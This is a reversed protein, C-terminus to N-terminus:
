RAILLRGSADKRLTLGQMEAVVTLVKDPQDAEFRGSIRKRSLGPEAFGASFGPSQRELEVLLDALTMDEADIWGQTWDPADAATDLQTFAAQKLGGEDTLLRGGAGLIRRQDPQKLSVVEVRGELVSVEVAGGSREDVNFRTGLATVRHTATFVSFPRRADKAVAFFGEGKLYVDRREAGFATTVESRGNLRVLSGDDFAAQVIQGTTGTVTQQVVRGQSPWVLVAAVVGAAVAGLGAAAWAPRFRPTRIKAPRADEALVQRMATALAPDCLLQEHLDLVKPRDPAGTLWNELRRAEDADLPGRRLRDAWLAAQEEIARPGNKM